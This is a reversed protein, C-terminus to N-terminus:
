ASSRASPETELGPSTSLRLAVTPPVTTPPDIVISALASASNPDDIQARFPFLGTELAKRPLPPLIQVQSRRAILRRSQAYAYRRTGGRHLSSGLTRRRPWSRRACTGPYRARRPGPRLTCSQRQVTSRARSRLRTSCISGPRSRLTSRTVRARLLPVTARGFVGSGDTVLLPVSCKRGVNSRHYAGLRYPVGPATASRPRSLRSHDPCNLAV